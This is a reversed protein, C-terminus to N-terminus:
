SLPGRWRCAGGARDCAGVKVARRCARDNSRTRSLAGWKSRPRDQPAIASDRRLDRTSDRREQKVNHRSTRQNQRQHGLALPPTSAPPTASLSDHADWRATGAALPLDAAAPVCARPRCPVECRPLISWRSPPAVERCSSAPEIAAPEIPCQEPLYARKAGSSDQRPLRLDFRADRNPM